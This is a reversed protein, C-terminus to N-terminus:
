FQDSINAHIVVAFFSYSTPLLLLHIVEIISMKKVVAKGM